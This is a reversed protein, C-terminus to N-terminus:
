KLRFVRIGTQNKKNKQYEYLSRSEKQVKGSSSSAHLLRVEDGACFAIGMHVADLGKINTTLVLIDGEEINLEKAGRWLENKPIYTIIRGSEKQELDAIEATLAHNDKLLKYSAPHRSMFNIEITDHKRHKGTSVEEIFSQKASDAIWMSVYHLRDRYGERKGKRYRIAELKETFTKFDNKGNRLTLTLALAQEVMTTCDVESTSIVLPEGEKELTGAVYRHELFEHAIDLLLDGKERKNRSHKELTRTVFLSDSKTYIIDQTHAVTSTLVFLTFILRRM